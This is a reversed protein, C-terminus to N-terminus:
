TLTKKSLNVKDSHPQKIVDSSTENRLHMGSIPSPVHAIKREQKDSTNTCLGDLPLVITTHVSM